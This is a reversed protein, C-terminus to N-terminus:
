CEFKYVVGAKLDQCGTCNCGDTASITFLSTSKVVIASYVCKKGSPSVHLSTSKVLDDPAVYKKAYPAVYLSTSKVFAAPTICKKSSPALSKKKKTHAGPINKPPPCFNDKDDYLHIKKPPVTVDDTELMSQYVGQAQVVCAFDITHKEDVTSWYHMGQPSLVLPIRTNTGEPASDARSLDLALSAASL